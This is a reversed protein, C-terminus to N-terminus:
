SNIFHLGRVQFCLEIHLVFNLKIYVVDVSPWRLSFIVIVNVIVIVVLLEFKFFNFPCSRGYVHMCACVCM